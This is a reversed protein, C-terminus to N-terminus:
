WDEVLIETGGGLQNRLVIGLSKPDVEKEFDFTQTEAFVKGQSRRGSIEVALSHKGTRLNGTYIKQVGGRSLAELEKFTYVHQTVPEGDIMIRASDIAPPEGSSGADEGPPNSTAALSVFVAVQTNSPFILKEELNGLEAAIALVDSKIDQVQEDLSKSDMAAPAGLDAAKASSMLCAFLVLATASCFGVRRFVDYPARVADRPLLPKM